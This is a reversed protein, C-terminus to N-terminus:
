SRARDYYTRIEAVYPRAAFRWIRCGRGRRPL